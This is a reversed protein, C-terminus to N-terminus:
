KDAGKRAELIAKKIEDLQTDIRADISGYATRIVCGKPTVSHDPIIKIETEGNVLAIFGERESQILEYDEPHICVSISEKEKFRLIHQQILEVYKDPHETLEQKVIKGAIVTSLELLFTEAESIIAEKQEFAQELVQQAHTIKGQYEAELIRRAEAKGKQLGDEYGKQEAEISRTELNQQSEEWWRNMKEETEAEIASAQQRAQELIADAQSKAGEILSESHRAAHNATEDENEETTPLHIPTLKIRKVENDISLNSAKFVKSYFTM